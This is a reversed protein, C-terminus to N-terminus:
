AVFFFPPTSTAGGYARKINIDAELIIGWEMLM